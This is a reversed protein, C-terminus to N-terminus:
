IININIGHAHLFKIFFFQTSVCKMFRHQRLVLSKNLFQKFSIFLISVEPNETEDDSDKRKRRNRAKQIINKHSDCIYTHKAQFPISQQM